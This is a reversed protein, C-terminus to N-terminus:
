RRPLVNPVSVFHSLLWLVIVVLALVQITTAWGPPMQIRTTIIYVVFGILAVVLVLILLDM